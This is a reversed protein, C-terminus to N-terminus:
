RPRLMLAAATAHLGRAWSTVFRDRVMVCACTLHFTHRTSTTSPPHSRLARSVSVVMHGYCSRVKLPKSDDLLNFRLNAIQALAIAATSCGPAQVDVLLAHWPELLAYLELLEQKHQKLPFDVPMLDSLAWWQLLVRRLVGAMSTWRQVAANTLKWRTGFMDLQLSKFLNSAHQSKNVSEIVKRVTDIISRAEANIGKKRDLCIGFSEILCCHILHALCWVWPQM